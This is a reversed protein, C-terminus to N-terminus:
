GLNPLTASEVGATMDISAVLNDFVRTTPDLVYVGANSWDGGRADFTCQGPTVTVNL